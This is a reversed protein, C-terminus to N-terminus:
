MGEPIEPFPMWAIIEPMDFSFRNGVTIVNPRFIATQIRPTYRDASELLALVPTGDRPVTEIPQWTNMNNM